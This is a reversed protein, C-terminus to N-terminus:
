DHCIAADFEPAREGERHHLIGSYSWKQFYMIVTEAHVHEFDSCMCCASPPLWSQPYTSKTERHFQLKIKRGRACRSKNYLSRSFSRKAADIKNIAIIEKSHVPGCKISCRQNDIQFIEKSNASPTLLYMTKAHAARDDCNCARDSM